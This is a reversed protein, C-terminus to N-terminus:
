VQHPTADGDTNVQKKLLLEPGLILGLSKVLDALTQEAGDFTSLVELKWVLMAEMKDPNLKLKNM